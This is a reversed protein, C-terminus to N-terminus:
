KAAPAAAAIVHVTEHRYSITVIHSAERIEVTGSLRLTLVITQIDRTRDVVGDADLVLQLFEPMISEM